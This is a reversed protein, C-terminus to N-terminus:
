KMGDIDTLSSVIFRNLGNSIVNSKVDLKLPDVIEEKM